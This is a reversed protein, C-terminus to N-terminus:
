REDEGTELRFGAGVLLQYTLALDLGVVNSYSGNLFSVFAAAVGQIGYAGAKGQWDKSALFAAREERSLRKFGVRTESLRTRMSQDPSVLAIGGLVRHRQGSLLELFRGAEKIDTPKGLIRRGCVVSTDAALIFDDPHAKAVLEAKEQAMRLVYDRPLEGPRPSEDLAAPVVDDPTLGIQALLDFRRPSASALIFRSGKPARLRCVSGM